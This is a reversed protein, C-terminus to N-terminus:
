RDVELIETKLKKESDKKFWRNKKLIEKGVKDPVDITDGNKFEHAVGSIMVKGDGM